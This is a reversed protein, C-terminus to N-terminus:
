ANDVPDPFLPLHSAPVYAFRANRRAALRSATLQSRRSVDAPERPTAPMGSRWDLEPVLDWPFLLWVEIEDDSPDTALKQGLTNFPLTRMEASRGQQAASARIFLELAGSTGSM